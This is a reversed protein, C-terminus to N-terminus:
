KDYCVSVEKLFSFPIKRQDVGRFTLHQDKNVKFEIRRQLIFENVKIKLKLALRQMVNDCLANIRLFAYKDLPTKQLNVIILKGHKGVDKPVDAAPTVTLSSGM